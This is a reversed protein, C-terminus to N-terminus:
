GPENAALDKGQAMSDLFKLSIVKTPKVNTADSLHVYTLGGRTWASHLKKERVLKRAGAFIQSNLHTLHENIYIRGTDALNKLAKRASLVANRTRRSVFGVIVPRLKSGSAGPVRYAFSIDSENIKLGLHVNCLELVSNVTSHDSSYTANGITSWSSGTQPAIDPLGYIAVNDLRSFNESEDLRKKLLENETELKSIKLNTAECHTTILSEASKAVLSDLKQTFADLLGNFIEEIMPALTKKLLAVAKEDQLTELLDDIKKDKKSM